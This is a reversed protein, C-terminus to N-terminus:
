HVAGPRSFSTVSALRFPADVGDTVGLAHLVETNRGEFLVSTWADIMRNWDRNYRRAFRERAFGACEAKSAHDPAPEFWIRPEILLWLRGLAFDLKLRLAEAWTAGCTPLRGSLGGTVDSLTRIGDAPRSLVPVLFRDSHRTLLRLPRNRCLARGLAHYLLGREGTDHYLRTREIPHLDFAQINHDHLARRVESDSGFALVGLRMRTALIDAGATAIVEDLAKIGGVSCEVRRAITPWEVVELANTRLVPWGRGPAPVHLDTVRQRKADLRARLAESLDAVQLVLDGVIEDFSGIPVLASDIGAVRATSLLHLVSAPPPTDGHHLWFLGAPLRGPACAEELTEMLSNDRGSFGAVVLGAKASSAVLTARLKADEARLEDSTNKLLRSRFDGHLKVLIPWRDEQLAQRAIDGLEPTAVTLATTTEYVEACADEILGDFNTTWVIRAKGARLLSAIALQGYSPRAGTTKAAIYARRDSEEPYCIEFYHSYEEPAHNPPHRHTADLYIQIRAPVVPNALDAVEAPSVRQDTCYLFRKLDWVMDIATPVGAAASTGSGLLWMLNPARTIFRRIFDAETMRPHPNISVQADSM